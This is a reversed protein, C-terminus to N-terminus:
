GPLDAPGMPPVEAHIAKELRTILDYLRELQVTVLWEWNSRKHLVVPVDDGSEAIAQEMWARVAEREVFKVEWHLGPAQVELDPSDPGGRFQVGRRAPLGLCEQIAKAALREGRKGKDRQSRGM